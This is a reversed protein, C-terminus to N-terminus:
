TVQLKKGTQLLNRPPRALKEEAAIAYGDWLGGM